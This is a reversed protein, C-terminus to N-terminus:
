NGLEDKDGIHLENKLSKMMNSLWEMATEHLKLRGDDLKDKSVIVYWEVRRRGVSEDVPSTKRYVRGVEADELVAWSPDYAKINWDHPSWDPLMGLELTIYNHSNECKLCRDKLNFKRGCVSCTYETRTVRKSIM